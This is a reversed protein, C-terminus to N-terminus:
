PRDALIAGHELVHQPKESPANVVVQFAPVRQNAQKGAVLPVAPEHFRHHADLLRERQLAALGLRAQKPAPKDLEGRQDAQRKSRQPIKQPDLPEDRLELAAEFRVVLSQGRGIKVVHGRVLQHGQVASHLVHQQAIPFRGDDVVEEDHHEEPHESLQSNRPAAVTRPGQVVAQQAAFSPQFADLRGLHQHAKSLHGPLIRFELPHDKFRRELRKRLGDGRRRLEAAEGLLQFPIKIAVAEPARVLQFQLLLGPSVPRLEQELVIEWYRVFCVILMLYCPVAFAIEVPVGTLPTTLGVFNEVASPGYVRWGRRIMWSELPTALVYMIGLAAAFRVPLSQRFLFREVIVAAAAIIAVWLGTMIWTLDHWFYSWAPFGVNDVMPEVMLEFMVVALITLGTARLWKQRRVPVLPMDDILFSWYKYFAIVLALFVPVYYLIEWPVGLGPVLHARQLVEPAYSRIGIQVVLTEAAAVLVLLAALYTCFRRPAGWDPRWLDVSLVVTMILATWGVTLIWSVDRYVYAWVGMHFNNWMPATFVEFILVGAAMVFFRTGLRAVRRRFLLFFAAVAALVAIEFLVIPGTPTRDFNPKALEMIGDFDLDMNAGM